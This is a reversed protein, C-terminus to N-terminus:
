YYFGYKNQSNYVVWFNYETHFFAATSCKFLRHRLIWSFVTKSM